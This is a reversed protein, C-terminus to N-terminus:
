HVVTVWTFRVLAEILLNLVGMLLDGLHNFVECELFHEKFPSLNLMSWV